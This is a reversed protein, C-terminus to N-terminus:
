SSLAIVLLVTVVNVLRSVWCHDFQVLTLVSVQERQSSPGHNIQIVIYMILVTVCVFVDCHWHWVLAVFWSEVMVVLRPYFVVFPYSLHYCHPFVTVILHPLIHSIMVFPHRFVIVPSPFSAIVLCPFPSPYSLWSVHELSLCDFYVAFFVFRHRSLRSLLGLYLLFLLTNSVWALDVSERLVYGLKFDYMLRFHMHLTRMYLCIWTFHM